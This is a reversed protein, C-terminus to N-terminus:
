HAATFVGTVTVTSGTPPFVFTCTVEDVANVGVGPASFVTNGDITIVLATLVSNSEPLFVVDRNTVAEFVGADGCDMQISIGNHDPKPDAVAAPAAMLWLGLVAGLVIFRRM